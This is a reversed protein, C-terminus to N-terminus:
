LVSYKKPQQLLPSVGRMFVNACFYELTALVPTLSESCTLYNVQELNM